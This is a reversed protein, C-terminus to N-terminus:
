GLLCRKGCRHLLLGSLKFRKVGMLLGALDKKFQPREFECPLAIRLALCGRRNEAVRRLGARAARWCRGTQM